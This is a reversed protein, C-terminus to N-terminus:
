EASEPTEAAPMPAAPPEAPAQTEAPAPLEHAPAAKKEGGTEAATAKIAAAADRAIRLHLHYGTLAAALRQNTANRGFAKGSEKRPVRVQAMRKEENVAVMEGKLRAPLLATAIRQETKEAAPVIDVREGLADQLKRAIPFLDRGPPVLIKTRHGPERVIKQMLPLKIRFHEAAREILRQTLSLAVENVVDLLASGEKSLAFLADQLLATDALRSEFPKVIGERIAQEARESLAAEFRDLHEGLAKAVAERDPPLAELDPAAVAAPAFAHTWERPDTEASLAKRFKATAERFEQPVASMLVPQPLPGEGPQRRTELQRAMEAAKERLTAEVAGRVEEFYAASDFGEFRKKWAEAADSDLAHKNAWAEVQNRHAALTKKALERATSRASKAWRPFDNKLEDQRLQWGRAEQLSQLNVTLGFDRLPLIGEVMSDLFGQVRLMRARSQLRLALQQEVERFRSIDRLRASRGKHEPRLSLSFALLHVHPRQEEEALDRRGFFEDPNTLFKEFAFGDHLNVRVNEITLIPRGIHTAEGEGSRVEIIGDTPEAAPMEVFRIGRWVTSGRGQEDFAPEQGADRALADILTTKGAGEAGAVGITLPAEGDTMRALPAHAFELLARAQGLTAEALAPSMGPVAQVANGFREVEHVLAQLLSQAFTAEEHGTKETASVVAEIRPAPRSAPRGRDQGRAGPGPRGGGRRDTPGRRGEGDPRGGYPRGEPRGERRGESRGERRGQGEPRGERREGRPPRDHRDRREREPRADAYRPNEAPAERRAPPPVNEPGPPLKSRQEESLFRSLAGFASHRVPGPEKKREPRPAAKPAREPEPAAEQARPAEEAQADARAATEPASAAAAEAPAEAPAQPEAPETSEPASNENDAM